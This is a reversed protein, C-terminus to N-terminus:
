KKIHYDIPSYYIVYGQVKPDKINKVTLIKDEGLETIEAEANAEKLIKAFAAIDFFQPQEGQKARLNKTLFVFRNNNDATLSYKDNNIM